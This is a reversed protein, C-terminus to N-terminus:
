GTGCHRLLWTIFSWSEDGYSLQPLLWHWKSLRVSVKAVVGEWNQQEFLPDALYLGLM